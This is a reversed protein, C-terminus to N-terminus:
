FASYGGDVALVTGTIFAAEPSCLFLAAPAVDRPEGWRGLPTRAIISDHFTETAILPATLDTKIWGPAIANVRVEDPAWAIALSKTLQVIGGKSASYAPVRGSGFYSLMSAVNLVCGRREKLLPYCARCMRMAGTLNVDIISSFVDPDHETGGRAITGACNVLLDLGPISDVLSLVAMNDTVDLQRADLRQDTTAQREVDTPDVSTVVVDCDNNALELAIQHGIGTCGGTVLATRRAQM